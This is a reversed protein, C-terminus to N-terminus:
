SHQPAQTFPIINCKSLFLPVPYETKNSKKKKTWKGKNEKIDDSYEINHIQRMRITPNKLDKEHLMM